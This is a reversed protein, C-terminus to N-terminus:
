RAALQDLVGLRSEMQGVYALDAQSLRTKSVTSYRGNDKLLRVHTPSIQVLRAVTQYQGSNDTWVRFPLEDTESSVPKTPEVAPKAGFLDDLDDVASPESAAPMEETAAPAVADSAPADLGDFLDDNADEQRAMRPEADSASDTGGFLDDLSDADDAPAADPQPTEAPEDFGPFADDAPADAAPAEDFGGVDDGSGFLDDGADAPPAAETDAPDGFLDDGAPEDAPFDDAPFDDAPMEDAPADFADPPAAAEEPSDLDNFLEDGDAEAPPEDLPMDAAAEDVSDADDMLENDGDEAPPEPVAPTPSPSPEASMPEVPTISGGDVPGSVVSGCCGSDIVTEGSPYYSSEVVDGYVIQDSCCSVPPCEVVPPCSTVPPCWVPPCSSVASHRSFFRCAMATDIALLTVVTAVFLLAILRGVNPRRM